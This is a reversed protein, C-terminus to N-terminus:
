VDPFSGRRKSARDAARPMAKTGSVALISLGKRGSLRGDLRAHGGVHEDNHITNVDAVITGFRVPRPRHPDRRPSAPVPAKRGHDIHFWGESPYFRLTEACIRLRMSALLLRLKSSTVRPASSIDSSLARCCCSVASCGSARTLCAPRGGNNNDSCFMFKIRSSWFAPIVSAESPCTVSRYEILLCNLHLSRQTMPRDPYRTRSSHCTGGAFTGSIRVGPVTQSRDPGSTAAASQRCILGYRAPSRMVGPFACWSVHSIYVFRHM